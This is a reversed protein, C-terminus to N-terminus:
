AASDLATNEYVFEFLTRIAIALRPGPRSIEDSDANLIAGNKVAKLDEWGARGMIEEEPKPGEGFYMTITVIYDPDREIVQEQSIEGWGQVDAFVNKLGLMTALEDMFTGSGATWLGYELPSVEFYVTKEGDATISATVDAFATKMEDVVSAANDQQGTIDGILEIATYVGQIDQADSVVVKIGAADLSAAQEKSQAMTGMLVVQPALEIIQEINTELGSQVSPVDLVEAPYDCYEGRGVLTDGAGIAYLIECDAATLAVIRTAPADLAIERGMMDTVVVGPTQPEDASQQTPAPAPTEEPQASQPANACGALLMLSLLLVLLASLVRKMM